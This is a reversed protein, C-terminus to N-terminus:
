CSCDCAACCDLGDCCNGGGTPCCDGCYCCSCDCGDLCNDKKKKKPKSGMKAFDPEQVDKMSLAILDSSCAALSKDITQSISKARALLIRKTVALRDIPLALTQILDAAKHLRQGAFQYAQTVAGEDSLPNYDGTHQDKSYDVACDFAIIAQGLHNGVPEAVESFRAVLAPDCRNVAASQALLKFIYAFANGTPQAYVALSHQNTSAELHHHQQVLQSTTETFNPDLRQFYQQMKRHSGRLLRNGLRAAWRGNDRIDDEIKIKGLLVGFSTAFQALWADPDTLMRRSAQLRCCRRDRDGPISQTDVLGFDVGLQYLFVAEFSLLGLSPVGYEIHQFQCCRRYADRYAPENRCFRLFGFM